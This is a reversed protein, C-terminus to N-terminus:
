RNDDGCKEYGSGSPFLPEAHRKHLYRQGRADTESASEQKTGWGRRPAVKFIADHGRQRNPEEAPGHNSDHNEEHDGPIELLVVNREHVSVLWVLVPARM